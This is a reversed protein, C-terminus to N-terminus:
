LIHWHQNSVEAFFTISHRGTGRPILPVGRTGPVYERLAQAPNRRLEWDRPETSFLPTRHYGVISGTDLGYGPLFGEAALVSMTLTDDYGETERRRRQEIGKLRKVFRDCRLRLAEDGPDLTGLRVRVEELRSMQKLAWRLRKQLRELVRGLQDM